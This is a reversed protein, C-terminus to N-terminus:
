SPVKTKMHCPGDKLCKCRPYSKRQLDLDLSYPGSLSLHSEKRYLNCWVCPNIGPGICFFILLSKMGKRLEIDSIYVSLLLPIVKRFYDKLLSHPDISPNLLM